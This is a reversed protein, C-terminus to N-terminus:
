LTEFCNIIKDAYELTDDTYTVAIALARNGKIRVYYDQYLVMGNGEGMAKMVGYTEEGIQFTEGEELITYTITSVSTITKKMAELYDDASFGSGLLKETTVVVNANGTLNSSMMEYVNVMRAYEVQKESFNDSMFEEGLGMMSNLEEEGLMSLGEPPAFCLGWFASEWASETLIGREYGDSDKEQGTEAKASQTEEPEGSEQTGPIDTEEEEQEAEEDKANKAEQAASSINKLIKVAGSQGCASLMMVSALIVMLLKKKM